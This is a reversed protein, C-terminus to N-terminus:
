WMKVREEFFGLLSYGLKFMEGHHMDGSFLIGESVTEGRCGEGLIQAIIDWPPLDPLRLPFCSGKLFTRAGCLLTSPLAWHPYGWSLAVSFLGGEDRFTLTFLRPLLEGSAPHGAHRAFGVRLLVLYSPILHSASRRTPRKLPPTVWRESLHNGNGSM